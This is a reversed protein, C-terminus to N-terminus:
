SISRTTQQYKVDNKSSSSCSLFTKLGFNPILTFYVDVSAQMKNELLNELLLVFFNHFLVFFLYVVVM